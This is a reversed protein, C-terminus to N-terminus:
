DMKLKDKHITNRLARIENEVHLQRSKGGGSISSAIKKGNYIRAKKISFLTSM